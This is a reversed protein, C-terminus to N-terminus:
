HRRVKPHLLHHEQLSREDEFRADCFQCTKFNKRVEGCKTDDRHQSANHAAIGELSKFKAPCKLCQFTEQLQDNTVVPTEFSAIGRSIEEEPVELHAEKMHEILRERSRYCRVCLRCSPLAM